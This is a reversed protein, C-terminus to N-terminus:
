ADTVETWANRHVTYYIAHGSSAHANHVYFTTGPEIFFGFNAVDGSHDNIYIGGDAVVTSPSIVLPENTDDATITVYYASAGLYYTHTGTNDTGDSAVFTAYAARNVSATVNTKTSSDWVPYQPNPRFTM